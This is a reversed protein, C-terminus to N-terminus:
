CLKAFMLWHEGRKGEREADANIETPFILDDKFSQRPLHCHLRSEGDLLLRPLPLCKAFGGSLNSQHSLM